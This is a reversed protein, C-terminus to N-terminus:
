KRDSLSLKFLKHYYCWRITSSVFLNRYRYSANFCVLFLLVYTFVYILMYILSFNTYITHLKFISIVFLFLFYFMLGRFLAAYTQMKKTFGNIKHLSLYTNCYNFLYINYRNRKIENLTTDTTSDDLLSYKTLENKLTKLILDESNEFNELESKLMKILNNYENEIYYSTCPENYTVKLKNQIISYNYHKRIHPMTTIPDAFNTNRGIKFILKKIFLEGIENSVIGAFCSLILFIILLLAVFLGSNEIKLFITIIKRISRSGLILDYYSLLALSTLEFVGVFLLCFFEYIGINDFLKDVNSM